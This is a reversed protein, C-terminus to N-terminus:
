WKGRESESKKKERKIETLTEQQEAAIRMARERHRHQLTGMM